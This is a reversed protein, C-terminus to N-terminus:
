EIISLLSFKSLVATKMCLIFFLIGGDDSKFFKFVQAAKEDYGVRKKLPFQLFGCILNRLHLYRIEM